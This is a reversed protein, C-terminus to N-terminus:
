YSPLDDAAVAAVIGFASARGSLQRPFCLQDELSIPRQGGSKLADVLAKLEVQGNEM